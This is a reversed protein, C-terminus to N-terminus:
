KNEVRLDISKGFLDGNMKSLRIQKSKSTFVFYTHVRLFKYNTEIFGRRRM